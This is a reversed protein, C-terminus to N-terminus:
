QDLIHQKYFFFAYNLNIGDRDKQIDTSLWLILLQAFLQKQPKAPKLQRIWLICFTKDNTRPLKEAECLWFQHSLSSLLYICNQGCKAYTHVYPLVAQCIM